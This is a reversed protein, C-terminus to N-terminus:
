ALDRAVMEVKLTEILSEIAAENVNLSLAIRLRATGAPVAPPRIARVDYGHTRLRAALEAAARDEGIVIPIIHSGSGTLGLNRALANMACEVRRQLEVRKSDSRECLALAARTVAAILPSPATSFVFPRGRNVLFDKLLRPACILAGATGLAKGCTHVTIVNERGELFAALGRGQPGLVGTAHAQDIVLVAEWRNALAELDNLDPADGDM